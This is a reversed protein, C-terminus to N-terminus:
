LIHNNACIANVHLESFGTQCCLLSSTPFPTFPYIESLRKTQRQFSISLHVSLSLPGPFSSFCLRHLIPSTPILATICFSLVQSSPPSSSTYLPCNLVGQLCSLPVCCKLYLSCDRWKHTKSTTFKHACKLFSLFHPIGITRESLWHSCVLLVTISSLFCGAFSSQCIRVIGATTCSMFTSKQQWKKRKGM